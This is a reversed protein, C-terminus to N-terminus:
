SSRKIYYYWRHTKLAVYKDQKRTKITSSPNEMSLAYVDRGRESMEPAGSFLLM